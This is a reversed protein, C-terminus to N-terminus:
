RSEVQFSFKRIDTLTGQPSFTREQWHCQQQNDMLLLTSTRTGYEPSQIFISSLLKEWEYGIGTEPLLHDEAKEDDRLLTFLADQQLQRTSSIYSTLSQMGRTVKPWPTQIDANSLGHIGDSLPFFRDQANNYVTLATLHGYLLNYGNYQNRSTRLTQSFASQDQQTLANVVLEGRTRADSKQEQNRINTLAAINGNRTVGMWTGNAELDQGALLDPYSAWFSSPATPRRHFEDRNAAIVLPYDAHQNIAVFLICM